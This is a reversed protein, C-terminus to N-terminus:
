LVIVIGILFGKLFDAVAKSGCPELKCSAASFPNECVFTFPILGISIWSGGSYWNLSILSLPTYIGGEGGGFSRLKKLRDDVDVEYEVCLPVGLSLLSGNLMELSDNSEYLRDKSM